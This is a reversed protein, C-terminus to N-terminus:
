EEKTETEKGEAVFAELLEEFHQGTVTMGRLMQVARALRTRWKRTDVKNMDFSAKEASTYGFDCLMLELDMLIDYARNATRYLELVNADNEPNARDHHLWLEKM